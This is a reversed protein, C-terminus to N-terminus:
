ELRRVPVTFQVTNVVGARQFQVWIRHFGPRPFIINFQVTRGPDPFAPHGHIMDLRDASAALMHGNAGLYPELGEHPDIDFFLLTKQGAVPQEPESRLRVSINTGRQEAIEAKLLAAPAPGPVILTRAALQPTGDKPYFDCLVRYQGSKPLTATFEFWGGAVAEPHEHAFYELDESVLFLHFLKEHILEFDQVPAKTKPHLVRFRFRTALGPTIRKPEVELLVPYEAPHPIGPVLKMGCKTCRSPGAARVDPDMPCIWPVPPADQAFLALAIASIAGARVAM